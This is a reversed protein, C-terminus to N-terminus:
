ITIPAGRKARFVTHFNTFDNLFDPLLVLAPFVLTLAILATIPITGFPNGPVPPTIFPSTTKLFIDPLLPIKRFESILCELLSSRRLGTDLVSEIELVSFRCKILAAESSSRTAAVARAVHVGHVKSGLAASGGPISASRISGSFEM